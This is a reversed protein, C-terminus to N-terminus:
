DCDDCHNGTDTTGPIVTNTGSTIIYQSACTPTPIPTPTPSATANPLLGLLSLVGLGLFLSRGFRTAWKM